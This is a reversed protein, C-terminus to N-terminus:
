PKKFEHIAHCGACRVKAVAKPAAACAAPLETHCRQCSTEIARASRLSHNGHCTACQPSKEGAQLKAWHASAAFSKLQAPHCSGCLAPVQERVAVRDPAAHGSAARHKESTGHCSACSVGKAFHPHSEVDSAAETHCQRCAEHIAPQQQALLLLLLLNM